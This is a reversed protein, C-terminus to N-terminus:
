AAGGLRVRPFIIPHFKPAFVAKSKLEVQRASVSKRVGIEVPPSLDQEITEVLQDALGLFRRTKEVAIKPTSVIEGIGFAFRDQDVGGGVIAPALGVQGHRHEESAEPPIKVAGVFFGPRERLTGFRPKFDVLKVM